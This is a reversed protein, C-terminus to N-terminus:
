SNALTHKDDLPRKKQTFDDENRFHLGQARTKQIQNLQKSWNKPWVIAIGEPLSVYSNFIAM